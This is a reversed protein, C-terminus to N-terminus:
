AGSRARRARRRPGREARQTLGSRRQSKRVYGMAGYLISDEGEHRDGKVGNVVRQIAAFSVDDAANRRAIEIDLQKLLDAINARTDLSPQVTAKFQELTFGGFAKEPRLRMWGDTIRHIYALTDKPSRKM